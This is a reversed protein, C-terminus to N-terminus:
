EGYQKVTIQRNYEVGPTEGETVTALGKLSATSGAVPMTLTLEWEGPRLADPVEVVMRLLFGRVEWSGVTFAVTERDTTNEASLTPTGSPLFGGRTFYLVQVAQTTDIYNM